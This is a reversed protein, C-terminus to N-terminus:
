SHKDAERATRVAEGFVERLRARQKGETDM